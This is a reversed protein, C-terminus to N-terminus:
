LRALNRAIQQHAKSRPKHKNAQELYAAYLIIQPLNDGKRWHGTNIAGSNILAACTDLIEQPDNALLEGIRELIQDESM